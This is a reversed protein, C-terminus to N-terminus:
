RPDSLTLMCRSVMIDVVYYGGETTMPLGVLFCLFCAGAATTRRNEACIPFRDCMMTIPAEVCPGV